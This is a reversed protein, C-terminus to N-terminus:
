GNAIEEQLQALAALAIGQVRAASWEGWVRASERARQEAAECVREAATDPPAPTALTTTM